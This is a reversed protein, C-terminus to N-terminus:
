VFTFSFSSMDKRFSLRDFRGGDRRFMLHPPSFIVFRVALAHKSRVLRRHFCRGHISLLGGLRSLLMFSSFLRSHLSPRTELGQSACPCTASSVPWIFPTFYFFSSVFQYFLTLILSLLSSTAYASAGTASTLHVIAKRFSISSDLYVIACHSKGM